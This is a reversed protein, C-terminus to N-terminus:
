GGLGPLEEEDRHFLASMESAEQKLTSQLIATRIRPKVEIIAQVVKSKKTRLCGDTRAVYSGKRFGAKLDVHNMAWKSKCGPIISGLEKLLAVFFTNPIAEDAVPPYKTEDVAMEDGQAMALNPLTAQDQIADEDLKPRKPTFAHHEWESEDEDSAEWHENYNVRSRRAARQNRPISTAQPTSLSTQQDHQSTTTPADSQNSELIDELFRLATVFEGPWKDGDRRLNDLNVSSGIADLFNSFAKWGTLLEGAEKWYDRNQDGGDGKLGLRKLSERFHERGIRRPFYTRLLAFQHDTTDSGSQLDKADHISKRLAIGKLLTSFDAKDAPIFFEGRGRM